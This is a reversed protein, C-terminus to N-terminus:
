RPSSSQPVPIHMTRQRPIPAHKPEPPSTTTEGYHIVDVLFTQTTHQQQQPAIAKALFFIVLLAGLAHLAVSGLIGPGNERLYNEGAGQPAGNISEEVRAVLNM